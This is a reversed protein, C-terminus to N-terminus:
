DGDGDGAPRELRAQVKEKMAEMQRIVDDSSVNSRIDTAQGMELRSIEYLTKAVQAAQGADRFAFEGASIRLVLDLATHRTAQALAETPLPRKMMERLEAVGMERAIKRLSQREEIDIAAQARKPAQAADYANPDYTTLGKAKARRAAASVAEQIPIPESM